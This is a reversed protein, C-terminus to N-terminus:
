CTLLLKCSNWQPTVFIDRATPPSLWFFFFIVGMMSMMSSYSYVGTCYQITDSKLAFHSCMANDGSVRRRRAFGTYARLCGVHLPLM